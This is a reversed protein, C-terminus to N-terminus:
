AVVLEPGVLGVAAAMPHQHDLQVVTRVYVVVVPGATAQGGVMLWHAAAAAAAALVVAMCIETIGVEELHHGVAVQEM